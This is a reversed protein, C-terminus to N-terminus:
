CAVGCKGITELAYVSFVIGTDPPIRPLVVELNIVFAILLFYIFLYFSFMQIYGNYYRQTKKFIIVTLITPM